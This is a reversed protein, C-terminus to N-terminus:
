PSNSQDAELWEVNMKNFWTLQRKVYAMEDSVWEEIMKDSSLDGNLFSTISKYGIASMSQLSSDYSKLLMKTEEIAGLEIRALVRQYIKERQVKQNAYKYGIIKVEPLDLNLPNLLNVSQNLYAPDKSIEIARILRRANNIDSHNMSAIKEPNLKQLMAQLQSTTLSSLEDRLSQNIPVNLTPIGATLAKVYLGTGGVVIVLKDDEWASKLHPMIASYWFSVSSSQDPDLLDIGYLSVDRPHDKGTVIDMGRYVQRSDASILISSQSQSLEIARKTKGSGTPGVVAILSKKM